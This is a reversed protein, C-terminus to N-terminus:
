FNTSLFEVTDGQHILATIFPGERIEIPEIAHTNKAQVYKTVVDRYRKEMEDVAEDLDTKSSMVGYSVTDKPDYLIVPKRAPSAFAVCWGRYFACTMGRVYRLELETGEKFTLLVTASVVKKMRFLGNMLAVYEKSCEENRICAQLIFFTRDTHRPNAIESIPFIKRIYEAKTSPSLAEWMRKGEVERTMVDLPVPVGLHIIRALAEPTVSPFRTLRLIYNRMVFEECLSAEEAEVGLELLRKGYITVFGREDIGVAGDKLLSRLVDMATRFDSDHLAKCLRHAAEEGKERKRGFLPM